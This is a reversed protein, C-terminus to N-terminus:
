QNKIKVYQKWFDPRNDTLIHCLRSESINYHTMAEKRTMREEYIVKCIELNRKLKAPRGVTM